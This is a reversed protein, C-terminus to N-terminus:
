YSGTLEPAALPSAPRPEDRQQRKLETVRTKPCQSGKRQNSAWCTHEQEEVRPGGTWEDLPCVFVVHVALDVSSSELPKIRFDLVAAHGFPELFRERHFATPGQAPLLRYPLEMPPLLSVRLSWM